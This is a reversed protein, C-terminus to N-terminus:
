PAAAPEVDSTVPPYAFLDEVRMGLAAALRMRVEDSPRKSTMEIKYLYTTDIEAAIALASRSLGQSEREQKIRAGWQAHLDPAAAIPKPSPM